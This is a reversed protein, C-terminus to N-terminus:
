AVTFIVSCCTVGAEAKALESIDIAEVRIGHRELRDRTRPFAAPFIVTGRVLLANAARPEAPDVEIVRPRGFLGPDVWAPNVLIMDVAVATVASKLHLCDSVPVAIVEYGHAAVLSAFQDIGATNTRATRGVFLRRGLLLVDGGDLTGPPQIFRLDRVPALADAAAQTEPRRSEAGPRAIVALEDLVVCTDEVFVADPLDPAAPLRRVECGLGALCEEYRRHQRTAAAFDIATRPLHSLECDAISPSVARTLAVLAPM